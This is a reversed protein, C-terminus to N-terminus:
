RTEVATAAAPGPAPAAGGATGPAATGPAATGPAATGPAAGPHLLAAITRLAQVVRPGPRGLMAADIRHVRGTKVARLSALGPRAAFTAAAAAADDPAAPWALIVVDPDAALISESSVQPWGREGGFVNVGHASRLLDGLFTDDGATWGKGTAHDLELYVRPAARGALAREVEALDSLYADRVAAGRAGAGCLSAIREIDSAISALRQPSLGLWAIGADDLAGRLRAPPFSTLVLDPRAQLILEVSPSLADVAPAARAEAPEDSWRDRLVLARGCGVAFLIETLAPSLSAVRRAPAALDVSRGQDDVVRLPAAAAAAATTTATTSTTAATSPPVRRCGTAVTVLLALGLLAPARKQRPLESTRRGGAARDPVVSPAVM